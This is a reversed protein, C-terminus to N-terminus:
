DLAGNSFDSVVRRYTERAIGDALNGQDGFLQQLVADKSIGRSEMMYKVLCIISPMFLGQSINLVRKWLDEHLAPYDDGTEVPSHVANYSLIRQMIQEVKASTQQDIPRKLKQMAPLGTANLSGVLESKIMEILANTAHISIKSRIRAGITGEQDFRYTCERPGKDAKRYIEDSYTRAYCGPFYLEKRGQSGSIPASDGISM